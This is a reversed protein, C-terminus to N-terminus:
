TNCCIGMDTVNEPICVSTFTSCGSECAEARACCSCDLLCSLRIKCCMYFHLSKCAPMKRGMVASAKALAPESAYM